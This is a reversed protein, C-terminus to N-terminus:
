AATRYTGSAPERVIRFNISFIPKQSDDYGLPTIATSQWIGTYRTLNVTQAPLGLLADVVSRALAYATDYAQRNGRVLIQITPNDILFAPNSPPGGTDRIAIVQDAGSEPLRGRKITDAAFGATILITKIDKSAPNTM